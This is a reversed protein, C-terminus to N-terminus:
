DTGAHSRGIGDCIASTKFIRAPLRLNRAGAIPPFEPGNRFIENHGISNYCFHGQHQGLFLPVTSHHRSEPPHRQIFFIDVILLKTTRCCFSHPSIRVPNSVLFRYATKSSNPLRNYRAASGKQQSPEELRQTRKHHHNQRFVPLHYKPHM